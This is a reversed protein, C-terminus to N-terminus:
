RKHHRSCKQTSIIAITFPSHHILTCQQLTVENIHEEQLGGGPPHVDAVPLGVAQDRRGVVEGVEHRCLLHLELKSGWTVTAM